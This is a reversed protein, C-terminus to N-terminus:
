KSFLNFFKALPEVTDSLNKIASNLEDIDIKNIKEAAETLKEQSTIALNNINKVTEELDAAALEDSITNVNDVTHKLEQTIDNVSTATKIVYVLMTIFAATMVLTFILQITMITNQKKGAAETKEILERLENTEM